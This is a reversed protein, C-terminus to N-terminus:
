IKNLGNRYINNLCLIDTKNLDDKFGHGDKFGNKIKKSISDLISMEDFYTDKFKSIMFRNKDCRFEVNLYKNMSVDKTGTAICFLLKFDIYQYTYILNDDAKYYSIILFNELGSLDSYLKSCKSYLRFFKEIYKREM